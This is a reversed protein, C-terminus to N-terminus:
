RLARSIAEHDAIAALGFVVPHPVVPSATEGGLFQKVAPERHWNGKGGSLGMPRGSAFAWVM